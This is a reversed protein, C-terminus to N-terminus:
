GQGDEAVMTNRCGYPFLYMVCVKKRKVKQAINETWKKFATDITRLDIQPRGLTGAASTTPSLHSQHLGVDGQELDDEASQALRQYDSRNVPM